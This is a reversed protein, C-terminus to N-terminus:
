AEIQGKIPRGPAPYDDGVRGEEDDDAMEGSVEGMNVTVTGRRRAAKVRMSSKTTIAIMATSM